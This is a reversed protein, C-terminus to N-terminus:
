GHVKSMFHAALRFRPAEVEADKCGEPPHMVRNATPMPLVETAVNLLMARWPKSSRLPATVVARNAQVTEQLRTVVRPLQHPPPFTWLVQNHQLRDNTQHSWARHCTNIWLVPTHSEQCTVRAPFRATATSCFLDVMDGERLNFRQLVAKVARHLLAWEWWASKKRSIRDSDRHDVMFQGSRFTLVSQVNRREALLNLSLDAVDISRTRLKTMAALVTVNDVEHGHVHPERPTGSHGESLLCLRVTARTAEAEQINHHKTAMEGFFFSHFKERGEPHRPIVM